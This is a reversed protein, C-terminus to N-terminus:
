VLWFVSLAKLSVPVHRPRNVALICKSETAIWFQFGCQRAARAKDLILQSCNTQLLQQQKPKSKDKNKDTETLVISQLVYLAYLNVEQYLTWEGVIQATDRRNCEVCEVAENENM